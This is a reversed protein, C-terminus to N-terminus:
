TLGKNYLSPEKGSYSYYKSINLKEAAAIEETSLFRAVPDHGGDADKLLRVTREVVSIDKETDSRLGRLDKLVTRVTTFDFFYNGAASVSSHNKPASLSRQLKENGIM